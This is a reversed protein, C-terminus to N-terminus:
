SNRLSVCYFKRGSTVSPNNDFYLGPMDLSNSESPFYIIIPEVSNVGSYWPAGCSYNNNINLSYSYYPGGLFPANVEIKVLIGPAQYKIYSSLKNTIVWSLQTNYSPYSGNDNKYMELATMVQKLYSRYASVQAKERATNMSALVVSSLFGIISIVVLLEILTFGTTTKRTRFASGPLSKLLKPTRFASGPLGKLLKPTRFASDHLHEIKNGENRSKIKLFGIM